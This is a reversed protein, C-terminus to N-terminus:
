KRESTCRNSSIFSPARPAAVSKRVPSCSLFPSIHLIGTHTHEFKKVELLVVIICCYYYYYYYYYYYKNILIYSGGFDHHEQRSRGITDSCVCVIDGWWSSREGMCTHTHTHTLTHTHTIYVMTGSGEAGREMQRLGGPQVLTM